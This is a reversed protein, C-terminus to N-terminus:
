DEDDLEDSLALGVISMFLVFAVLVAVMALGGSPVLDIIRPDETAVETYELGVYTVMALFVLISGVGAGIQVLITREVDRGAIEM